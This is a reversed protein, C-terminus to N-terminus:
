EVAGDDREVLLGAAALLGLLEALSAETRAIRAVLKDLAAQAFHSGRVLQRELQTVADDHAPAWDVPPLSPSPAHGNTTSM